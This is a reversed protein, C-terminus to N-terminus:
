KIKMFPFLIVDKISAKNLLIMAMRDIGIGVGGTPPMGYEISEIFDEDMPHAEEDKGTSLKKAQEELLKRQLVPDNLESYANAIEMGAIYPEFREIFKSEPEERWKKCLPTSEYPHLTIFTPQILKDEVLEEFLAQLLEGKTFREGLELQHEKCLKNKDEDNVTNIDINAFKKLAEAMTYSKWPSKVDIKIGQYEFETKGHIAIAAAQFIQEVLKQMDYFDSFAEYIEIQTFEPNHTSDIDENRFDKSFEYVKPFGGVILRKLYLENSIRLFVPMDLSNLHSKFPKAAAGGYIPQLIPTEVEIFEKSDLFQRISNIMKTKKIFTEKVEPNMILDLYRKRYRAEIDKLGHWKDPFPKISKCLMDFFEAKITIEGTKTTFIKGEAGMWDGVDFLKLLNYKETGLSEESFFVQMRGTHDQLKIFTIKGIRRLEMVRGAIRAKEESTSNEPLKKFKNHIKEATSDPEYRYPYPNIGKKILEQRKKRREEILQEENPM